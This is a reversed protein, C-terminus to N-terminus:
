TKIERSDCKREKERWGRILSQRDRKEKEHKYEIKKQIKRRNKREKDKEKKSQRKREQKVM